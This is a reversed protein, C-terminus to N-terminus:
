AARRGAQHARGLVLGSIAGFIFLVALFLGLYLFSRPKESVNLEMQRSLPAFSATSGPAPRAKVDIQYAGRIPFTYDITQTGDPSVGVWHLVQKGEIRPVDTSIFWNTEPTRMSVDLLVNPIARGAADKVEIVLTDPKLGASPGGHPHIQSLEPRTTLTIQEGAAVAPGGPLFGFLLLALLGASVLGSWLSAGRRMAALRYTRQGAGRLPRSTACGRSLVSKWLM